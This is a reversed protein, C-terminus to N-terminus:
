WEGETQVNNIEEYYEPKLEKDVMKNKIGNLIKNEEKDCEKGLFGDFDLKIKENKIKGKITKM